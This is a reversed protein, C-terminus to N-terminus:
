GDSDKLLLKVYLYIYHSNSYFFFAVGKYENKKIIKKFCIIYM